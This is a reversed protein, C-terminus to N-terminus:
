RPAICGNESSIKHSAEFELRHKIMDNIQRNSRVVFLHSKLYPLGFHDILPVFAANVFSSPVDKVGEFSLTVSRGAALEEHLYRRVIDGNRWSYCDPVLNLVNVAM